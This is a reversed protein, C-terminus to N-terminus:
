NTQDRPPVRDDGGFSSFFSFCLSFIPVNITRANHSVSFFILNKKRLIQYIAKPAECTLSIGFHLKIGEVKLVALSLTLTNKWIRCFTFLSLSLSLIGM